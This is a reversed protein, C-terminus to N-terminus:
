NTENGGGNWSCGVLLIIAVNFLPACLVLGVRLGSTGLMGRVSHQRAMCASFGAVCPLSFLAFCLIWTSPKQGSDPADFLMLSVLSFPLTLVVLFCCAVTIVLFMCRQGGTRGGAPQHETGAADFESVELFAQAPM